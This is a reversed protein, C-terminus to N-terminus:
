FIEGRLTSGSKVEKEKGTKIEEMILYVSVNFTFIASNYM